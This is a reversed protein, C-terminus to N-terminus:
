RGLGDSCTGRAQWHTTFRPTRGLLVGAQFPSFFAHTAPQREEVLSGSVGRLAYPVHLPVPTNCERQLDTVFSPYHLPAGASARM